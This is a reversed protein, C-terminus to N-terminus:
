FARMVKRIERHAFLDLCRCKCQFVAFWDTSISNNKETFLKLFSLNWSAFSFTRWTNKQQTKNKPLLTKVKVALATFVQNLSKCGHCRSILLCSTLFFCAIRPYVKIHTPSILIRILFNIQIMINTIHIYTHLSTSQYILIASYLLSIHWFHVCYFQWHM